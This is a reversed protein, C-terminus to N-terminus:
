VLDLTESIKHAAKCTVSAQQQCQKIKVLLTFLGLYNSSTLLLIEEGKQIHFKCNLKLKRVQNSYTM